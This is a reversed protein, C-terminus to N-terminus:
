SPSGSDAVPAVTELDHAADILARALERLEQPSMEISISGFGGLRMHLSAYDQDAFRLVCIEAPSYQSAVRYRHGIGIRSYRQNPDKTGIYPPRPMHVFSQPQEATLMSVVPAFVAASM